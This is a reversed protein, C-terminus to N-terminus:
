RSASTSLVRYYHLSVAALWTWLLVVGGTFGLILLANGAGSAIGAFAAFFVAGTVRSFVAWSAQGSRSFRRALVFCAVIVLAFGITGAMLHGMGHWSVAGPGDPTGAPFGMAPDARLIAAGVLSVGYGGVLRPVWTAGIGPRLARGLGVAAAIVMLGTLVFNTIQIWGLSGNSLMSWPHRALDFGDRTLAQTLSVTVYFPGALVGYGLLSRTIATAPDCTVRTAVSTTTMTTTM